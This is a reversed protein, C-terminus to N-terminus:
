RFGGGIVGNGGIGVGAPSNSEQSNQVQPIDGPGINTNNDNGTNQSEKEANKNKINNDAAQNADNQVNVGQGDQNQVNANQSGVNQDDTNQGNITQGDATNQGGASQTTDKTHNSSESNKNEASSGEASATGDKTDRGSSDKASTGSNDKISTGNGEEKASTGSSEKVSTGSGDKTTAGGRNEASTGGNDRGSADTNQGNEAVPETQGSKEGAPDDKKELQGSTELLERVGMSGYKDIDDASVEPKSAATENEKIKRIEQYEGSSIGLAKADKRESISSGTVTANVTETSKENMNDFVTSAEEKLLDRIKEDDCSVNVLVYDTSETDLYGYKELLAATKEMAESLTSKKIGDTKLEQVLEAAEDDLATVDLVLNKRNLTFEISTDADLSVYSCAMVNNYSYMGAGGVFLAAAAAISGYRLVTQLPIRKGNLQKESLEITDGTTLNKQKIKIIEGETTLVVAEKGRIELVVAKM